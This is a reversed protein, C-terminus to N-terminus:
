LEIGIKHYQLENKLFQFLSNKGLMSVNIYDLIYGSVWYITKWKYFSKEQQELTIFHQCGQFINYHYTFEPWLRLIKTNGKKNM